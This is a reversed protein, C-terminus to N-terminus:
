GRLDDISFSLGRRRLYNVLCSERLKTLAEPTIGARVLRPVWPLWEKDFDRLYAEAQEHCHLELLTTM